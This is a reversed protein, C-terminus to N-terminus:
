CSDGHWALGEVILNLVDLSSTLRHILTLNLSMAHGDDTHTVFNDFPTLHLTSISPNFMFHTIILHSIPLPDPEKAGIVHTAVDM